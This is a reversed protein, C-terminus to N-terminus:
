AAKRHKGTRNQAPVLALDYGLSRAISLITALTPNPSKTTLLRRVAEPRTGTRRALEAKSVEASERLAELSRMFADVSDIGARAEAYSAAFERDKMRESFYRDFGGGVPKRKM